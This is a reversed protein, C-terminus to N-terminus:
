IKKLVKNLDEALPATLTIEENNKLLKFTLQHAHLFQRKLGKEATKENIQADGYMSDGV